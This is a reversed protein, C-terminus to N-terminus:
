YRLRPSSYAELVQRYEDIRELIVASVPFVIGKPAFDREALVHHILYRHVRGNGDMFPHIFVFGFAIMAAAVVPDVQVKRLRVDAAIMGTLIRELDQWRASIHGPMPLGSHRDHTGIFGGEKRLGMKVFRNDAIVISQLRLLEQITLPHLGAEGIAQGWREARNQSPSEGEIAFSAKSDQLLMFAAARALVDAHVKGTKEKAERRWDHAIYAEIKATRRVLPCFDPVGPLNDRVRHRKSAIPTGVYYKKSDLADVFNGTTADPLQLKHDTLWEYFFWARRSYQGVPERRVWAEIEDGGIKSFLAHLLALDVGEYRLAFAIHGAITDDPAHRPTYVEWGEMAYRRHQKSVAALQEPLPVRLEFADALAAYGVLSMEPEPLVRGHFVTVTRSIRNEPANSMFIM